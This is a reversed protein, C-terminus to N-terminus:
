AQEVIPLLLSLWMLLVHINISVCSIDIRVQTTIGDPAHNIRLRRYGEICASTLVELCATSNHGSEDEEAFFLSRVKIPPFSSIDFVSESAIHYFVQENLQPHNQFSSVTAVASSFLEQLLDSAGARGESLLEVRCLVNM